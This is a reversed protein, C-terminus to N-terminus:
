CLLFKMKSSEISCTKQTENTERYVSFIRMRNRVLFELTEPFKMEKEETKTLWEIVMFCLLGVFICFQFVWYLL